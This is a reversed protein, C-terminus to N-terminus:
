KTFLNKMNMNHLVEKVINQIIILVKISQCVHYDYFSVFIKEEDTDQFYLCHNGYHYDIAVVNHVNQLPIELLQPSESNLNLQSIKHLEAVLLFEAGEVFLFNYKICLFNFNCLM